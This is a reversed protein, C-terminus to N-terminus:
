VAAPNQLVGNSRSRPRPRSKPHHLPHQLVFEGNSLGNIKSGAIDRTRGGAAGILHNAQKRGVAVVALVPDLARSFGEFPHGLFTLEVDASLYRSRVTLARPFVFRTGRRGGRFPGTRLVMSRSASPPSPM